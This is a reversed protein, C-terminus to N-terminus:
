PSPPRNPVDGESDDRYGRRFPRFDVFCQHRKLFLMMVAYDKDPIRLIKFASKYRGGTERLALSVIQRVAQSTLLRRLFPRKVAQEFTSESNRLLDFVNRATECPELLGKDIDDLVEPHLHTVEILRGRSAYYAGEVLYM